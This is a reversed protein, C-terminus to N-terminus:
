KIKKISLIPHIEVGNPAVGLQGHIKDFFLVGFIRYLGPEVKQHRMVRKNFEKMCSDFKPKFLNKNTTDCALNPIEGIMTKTSDILSVLVLHKDGDDEIRYERIKCTITFTNYELGFRPTSNGIKRGPKISILKEITSSKPNFNIDKACSDALTKVDWREKGGCPNDVFFATMTFIVAIILIFFSVKKFNVKM